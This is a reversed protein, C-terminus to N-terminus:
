TEVSFYLNSLFEDFSDAIHFVDELPNELNHEMFEYSAVKGKHPGRIGILVIISGPTSGIPIFDVPRNPYDHETELYLNYFVELHGLRSIGSKNLAEHSLTFLYSLIQPTGATMASGVYPKKVDYYIYQEITPNFIGGNITMLFKRYDDPLSSNITGEFTLVENETAPPIRDEIVKGNSGVGVIFNSIDIKKM